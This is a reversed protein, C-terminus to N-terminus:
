IKGDKLCAEVQRWLGDIMESEFESEDEVGSAVAAALMGFKYFVHPSSSQSESPISIAMYDAREILGPDSVLLDAKDQDVSIFTEPLSIGQEYFFSYFEAWNEGDTVVEQKKGNRCVVAKSGSFDDDWAAIATIKLIKSLEAALLLGILMDCQEIWHVTQVVVTWESSHLKLLFTHRKGSEPELEVGADDRMKVPKVNEIYKVVGKRSKLVGAVKEIPANVATFSWGQQNYIFSEIGKQLMERFVLDDVVSGSGKKDVKGKLKGKRILGPFVEKKVNQFFDDKKGIKAAAEISLEKMTPKM